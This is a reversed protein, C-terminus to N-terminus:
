GVPVSYTHAIYAWRGACAALFCVPFVFWWRGLIRKEVAIGTLISSPVAILLALFCALGVGSLTNEDGEGHPNLTLAYYAFTGALVHLAVLPAAWLGRVWAVPRPRLRALAPSYSMM